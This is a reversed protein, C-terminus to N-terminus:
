SKGRRLPLKVAQGTRISMKAAELVEVVAVNLDLSSMGDLPQRTRIRNAMYDLPASREPPLPDAKLPEGPTGRGGGGGPAGAKRIQNGVISGALGYIENGGGPSRPPQAWSAELIAEGNKWNLVITTNDEVNPYVDPKIHQANAYVSEPQGKLWLAWLVSYCGFDMLAGGGNKVPDALWAAFASSKPNGPGSGGTMAHLRWVPGIEGADIAAKVAYQAPQWASAYNAMVLVKHKRALAQMELAQEYTAALPKEMMVHIGKPACYRVVDVHESTPTFAWVVDPRTQDIMRKWDTFILKEDSLHPGPKGYTYGVPAGNIAWGRQEPAADAVGVLQFPDGKMMAGINLWIHGHQMGAVAIKLPQGAAPLTLLCALLLGRQLPYPRTM